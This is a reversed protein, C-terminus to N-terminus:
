TEGPKVTSSLPVTAPAGLPDGKVRVLVFDTGWPATGANKLKWTKVFTEGAKFVTGDPVTVDAVFEAKYTGTTGGPTSSPAGGTATAAAGTAPAGTASPAVIATPTKSPVVVGTPPALETLTSAPTPLVSTASPAAESPAPILTATPAARGLLGCGALSLALGGFLLIKRLSM